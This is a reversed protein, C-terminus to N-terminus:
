QLVYLKKNSDKYILHLFLLCWFAPFNFYLESMLLILVSIFAGIYLLKEEKNFFKITGKLSIYLLIMMYLFFLSGMRVLIDTIGVTRIQRDEMKYYYRTDPHGGRGFFEHGKFDQMDRLINLFRQTNTDELYLDAGSSARAIQSEIKNGLFDFQYFATVALILIAIAALTRYVVNKIKVYFIFFVFVFLALIATTSMTSIIGLLIVIGKKRQHRDKLIFNFLLALFLYGAFAGPEWFPGSNRFNNLHFLNVNYIVITEHLSESLNLMDFAPVLNVLLQKFSPVLIIPIFIFLSIIAMYYLINVYYPMFKEGLIKVILYGIIIRLFVGIINAISYFNFVYTQISIVILLFVIVRLITTDIKIKRLLFVGFLLIFLPIYFLADSLYPIGSVCITLLLLFYDTTNRKSITM